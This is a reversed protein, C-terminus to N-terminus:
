PCRGESPAFSDAVSGKGGYRGPGAGTWASGLRAGAVNAGGNLDSARDGSRVLDRRRPLSQYAGQAARANMPPGWAQWVGTAVILPRLWASNM